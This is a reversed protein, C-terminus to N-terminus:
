REEAWARTKMNPDVDAGRKRSGSSSRDGDIIKSILEAM